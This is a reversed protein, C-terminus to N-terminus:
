PGARYYLTRGIRLTDDAPILILTLQHNEEIAETGQVHVTGPSRDESTELIRYNEEVVQPFGDGSREPLLFARQRVVV